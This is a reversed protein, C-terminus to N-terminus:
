VVVVVVVVVDRSLGARVPVGMQRVVMTVREKEWRNRSEEMREREARWRDKADGLGAYECM